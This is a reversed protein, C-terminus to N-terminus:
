REQARSDAGVITSVNCLNGQFRGALRAQPDRVAPPDDPGRGARDAWKQSPFAEYGQKSALAPNIRPPMNPEHIGAFRFRYLRGPEPALRSAAEGKRPDLPMRWSRQCRSTNRRGPSTWPAKWFFAGAVPSNPKTGVAQIILEVGARQRIETHSLVKGARCSWRVSIPASIAPTSRPPIRSSARIVDRRCAWCCAVRATPRGTLTSARPGPTACHGCAAGVVSKRTGEDVVTVAIPRIRPSSSRSPIPRSRMGLAGNFAGSPLQEHIMDPGDITAANFALTANDTEPRHM